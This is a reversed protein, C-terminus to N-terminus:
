PLAIATVEARVPPSTFDVPLTFVVVEKSGKTLRKIVSQSAAVAINNADYLVVSIPLDIVERGTNNHVTATVKRNEFEPNIEGLDVRPLGGREWQAESTFEFFVHAPKKVGTAVGTDVVNTIRGPSLATVGDRQAILINNEDFLKFSYPVERVYSDKNDNEINAALTYVGP